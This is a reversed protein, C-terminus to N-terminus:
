KIRIKGSWSMLTVLAQRGLAKHAHRIQLFNTRMARETELESQAAPTLRSLAALKNFSASLATKEEFSARM